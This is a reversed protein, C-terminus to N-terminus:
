YAVAAAAPVATGAYAGNGYCLWKFMQQVPFLREACCCLCRLMGSSPHALCATGLAGAQHAVLQVTHDSGRHKSHSFHAHGVQM